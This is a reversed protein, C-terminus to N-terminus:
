TQTPDMLVGVFLLQGNDDNRVAYVFPHDMTMTFPPAM